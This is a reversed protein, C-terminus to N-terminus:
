RHLPIQYLWVHCPYGAMIIDDLNWKESRECWVVTANLMAFIANFIIKKVSFVSFAIFSLYIRILYTQVFM